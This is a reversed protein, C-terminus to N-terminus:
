LVGSFRLVHGGSKDKGKNRKRKKRSSKSKLDEEANSSDDSLDDEDEDTDGDQGLVRKGVATESVTHAGSSARGGGPEGIAEAWVKVTQGGGSVLRGAIDFAVGVVSEIDDHKVDWDNLVGNRGVRLFRVRGDELGAAIIKENLKSKGKCLHTPVEVLSEVGGGERDVVIREDLDGWVGREWLSVVGDGHGVLIKEGVSTGGKKLGDVLTISTLEVDQDESKAIVGKRFDTVALTTGGVSICSKPVGSTSTESPPLLILDNVHETDHPTWIGAMGAKGKSHGNAAGTGVRLDRLELRGSDTGVLLGSEGVIKLVTPGDINADEDFPIAYKATVRGTETDFCKILGDTGASFCTRGDLSYTLTRCSGHHRRTSWLTSISGLGNESASSSHRYSTNLSSRRGTGNTTPPPPFIPLPAEDSTSSPAPSDNDSPLRYTYVHGSSLGVTLIPENPHLAQAFLDSPLPLTCITDFM